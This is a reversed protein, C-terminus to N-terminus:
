HFIIHLVVLSILLMYSFAKLKRDPFSVVDFISSFKRNYAFAIILGALIVWMARVFYNMDPYIAKLTLHM